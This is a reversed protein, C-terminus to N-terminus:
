SHFTFPDCISGTENELVLGYTTWKGDMLCGFITWFVDVISANQVPLPDCGNEYHRFHEEVISRVRDPDATLGGDRDQLVNLTGM